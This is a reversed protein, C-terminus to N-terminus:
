VRGGPDTPRYELGDAKDALECMQAYIKDNKVVTERSQLHIFDLLRLKEPKNKFECEIIKYIFYPYYPKNGGGPVVIDYLKMAKNFRTSILKNEAFSLRPASAGGFTRVLLTAHDNLATLAVMPDKLITRIIECTLSMRDYKDRMIVYKIKNLDSQLFTKNETGQIREIWFRYHRSTDYGGHKSKQGDQPYFQDDRFVAGVIERIKGCTPNPCHLESLEPFVDMRSGCKCVEYNRKILATEVTIGLAINIYKFATSLHTTYIKDYRERTIIRARGAADLGQQLVMAATNVKSIIDNIRGMYNERTIIGYYEETNAEECSDNAYYATLVRVVALGYEHEISAIEDTIINLHVSNIASSVPTESSIVSPTVATARTRTARPKIHVAQLGAHVQRLETIAQQTHLIKGMFRKNASEITGLM